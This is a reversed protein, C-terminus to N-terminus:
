LLQQLMAVMLEQAAAVAVVSIQAVLLRAV